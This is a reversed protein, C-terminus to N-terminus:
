FCFNGMVHCDPPDSNCAARRNIRSKNGAAFCPVIVNSQMVMRFPTLGHILFFEIFQAPAKFGVASGNCLNVAAIDAAAALDNGIYISRHTQHRLCLLLNIQPKQFLRQGACQAPVQHVDDEGGRLNGVAVLMTQQLGQPLSRQLVGVGPFGKVAADDVGNVHTVAAVEDQQCGLAIINRM